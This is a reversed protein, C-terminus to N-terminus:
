PLTGHITASASPAAQIAQEEMWDRLSRPRMDSWAQEVYALVSQKDGKIGEIATWGGPVAKWLPWILYQEEQNALVIFTENERDLCSTSM